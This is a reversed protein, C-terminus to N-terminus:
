QIRRLTDLLEHKAAESEVDTTITVHGRTKTQFFEPRVLLMVTLPDYPHSIEQKRVALYDYANQRVYNFLPTTPLNKFAERELIVTKAVENTLVTIPIGSEFVLRVAEPDAKANHKEYNPEYQGNREVVGGMWYIRSIKEKASPHKQLLRALNTCPGISILIDSPQLTNELFTVADSLPTPENGTLIGNGEHGYLYIKKSVLPEDLGAHVPIVKGMTRLLKDAIQARKTACGHVTTIGGLSLYQSAYLLALADDVDSGIDTDIFVSM